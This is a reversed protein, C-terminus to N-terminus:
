KYVITTNTLDANNKLVSSWESQSGYYNITEISCDQLANRNFSTIKNSLSLVKLEGCGQLSNYDFSYYEQGNHTIEELMSCNSLAGSKLVGRDITLKKLTEPIYFTYENEVIPIISSNKYTIVKQIVQVMGEGGYTNFFYGLMNSKSTPTSSDPEVAGIFPLHLEELSICARFLSAGMTTVSASIYAKKLATCETFVYSGLTQVKEPLSIEELAVCKEFANDKIIELNSSLGITELYRNDKFAGTEITTVTNPLNISRMYTNAFAYAEITEIQLNSLDLTGWFDYGGMGAGYFAYEGIKEITLPFVFKAGGNIGAFQYAGIESVSSPIEINTVIKWQDNLDKMYIFDDYIPNSKRSKFEINCWDEITGSYYVKRNDIMEFAGTGITSISSTIYVKTLNDVQAFAYDGITQITTPLNIETISTNFFAYNGISNTESLIILTELSSINSFAGALINGGNVVIKNLSSPFYYGTGVEPDSIFQNVLYSNNYEETGFLHGLLTYESAETYSASEGIYPLDLERINECGSFIGNGISLVTGPITVKELTLAHMFAYDDITYAKGNVNEPLVLEIDKGYYYVLNYIDKEKDYYFEYKDDITIFDRVAEISIYVAKAYYAIYGNLKSGLEMELGSLNYVERLKYCNYFANQIITDVNESLVIKKLNGCNRFADERIETVSNSVEFETISICDKFAGKSIFELSNPLKIETLSSCKLFAYSLVYQCSSVDISQIMSCDSFAGYNVSGGTVIVKKLSLPISYQKILNGDSSVEEETSTAQKYEQNVLKLKEADFGGFIYGLVNSCSNYDSPTLEGGVFPIVLEELNICNYLANEEIQTVSSPIILETGLYSMFANTEIKEITPNDWLIKGAYNYFAYAKINKVNNLITISEGVYNEFAQAEITIVSSPLVISSGEYGEYVKTAITEIQPNDWKIEGSYGAFTKESLYKVSSPITISTNLYNDFVESNLTEILAGNWDIESSVGEFAKAEITEVSNPIVIVDGIYGSYASTKLTKIVPNIWTLQNGLGSFASSSITTVCSDITLEELSTMGDFAQSGISTVNDVLKVVKINELNFFAYNVVEGNNVVVNTLTEPIYYTESDGVKQSVSGSYEVTGFYYGLMQNMPLTLEKLGAMQSFAASALTEISAPVELKMIKNSNAFANASITKLSEPLKIEELESCYAFAYEGIFSINNSLEIKKLSSCDIFAYDYVNELREPLKVEELKGCNAFAYHGVSTLSSPFNISKLNYCSNFANYRIEELMDPLNVVELKSSYEFANEGIFTAYLITIEKLNGINNTYHLSLTGVESDDKTAGFFPITLKELNQLSSVVGNGVEEITDSLEVNKISEGTFCYDVIYKANTVKVNELNYIGLYESENNFFYYLKCSNEKEVGSGIFPVTMSVLSNCDKLIDQGIYELDNPLVISTMNSCNAFAKEGLRLLSSSLVAAGLNSCSEFASEEIYKISDAFDISTLNYCNYFAYKGITELKSEEEFVLENLVSCAYFAYEGISEVSAPITVSQLSSCAYFVQSDIKTLTSPLDFSILSSCDYFAGQGIEKLKSGTEFEINKLASCNYFADNNIKEISAALKINEVNYCGMFAQTPIETGSTVEVTKLSFPISYFLYKLNTNSTGNVESGIFPLCLKEIQTGSFVNKDITELSNPIAIEKLSKCNKFAEEGISKLKSGEEFEFSSLNTMNSFALAGISEVSAPIKLESLNSKSFASAEISVLQANPVFEFSQLNTCETLISSDIKLVKPGIIIKEINSCKAFTNNFITGCLVTVEKLGTPVYFNYIRNSYTHKVQYSGTYETTGFIYPFATLNSKSTEDIKGGVFPVTLKELSSCGSFVSDGMTTITSPLVVEKLKICNQFANDGISEVGEEFEVNVLNVCNQFASWGITLVSSPINVSTIGSNYFANIGIKTVGEPIEISTVLPCDYLFNQAIETLNSPVNIKVLKPCMNFGKFTEVSDPLIVEELNAMDYFMNLSTLETCNSLDVKRLSTLNYFRSNITKMTDPFVIEELGICYDLANKGISSVPEEIVLKKLNECNYFAYDSINGGTVVITTLSSPLAYMYGVGSINQGNGFSSGFIYGVLMEEGYSPEISGGVFPISLYKINACDSFAGKKVNTVPLGRYTAPVIVDTVKSSCDTVTYGLGDSNLSFTLYSTDTAGCVSCVGEVLNHDKLPITVTESHDCKTCEREKTGTETCTADKIVDWESFSHGSTYITEIYSEGCSCQYEKFGDEYCNKEKENVLEYNHEHDLQATERTETEGCWECARGELGTTNVTPDLIVYWDGWKHEVKPTFKETSEGCKICGYYIVGETKCTAETQNVVNFVHECKGSPPNDGGGGGGSNDGCAVVFMSMFLVIIFLIVKKM